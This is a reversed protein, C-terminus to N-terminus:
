LQFGWDDHLHKGVASAVALVGHSGDHEISSVMGGIGNTGGVVSMLVEKERQLILRIIKEFLHQSSQPARAHRYARLVDDAQQRCTKLDGLLEM